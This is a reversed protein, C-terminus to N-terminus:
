QRRKKKGTAAWTLCEDERGDGRGGGHEAVEAERPDLAAEAQFVERVPDGCM